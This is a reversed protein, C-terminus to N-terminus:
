WLLLCVDIIVLMTIYNICSMHMQTSTSKVNSSFLYCPSKLSYPVLISWYILYLVECKKTYNVVFWLIYDLGMKNVKSWSADWPLLFLCCLPRILLMKLLCSTSRNHQWLFYNKKRERKKRFCYVIVEFV